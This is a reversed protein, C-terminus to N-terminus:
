DAKIEKRAIVIAGILTALLILSAVEFPLLWRTLLANGLPKTTYAIAAGESLSWPTVLAVTLLVPIVAVFILVGGYLGASVNSVSVDVIRNTLMVAFLVLTLVGGIYILLQTIALFDASLMVYLGGVGLLAFLLGIASWLINRSLAVAAAGGVTVGALAYFIVDPLGAAGTPPQLTADVAPLLARGSIVVLFGVVLASAIVWVTLKGLNSKM